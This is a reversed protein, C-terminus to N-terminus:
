SAYEGSAFIDAMAFTALLFVDKVERASPKRDDGYLRSHVTEVAVCAGFLIDRFLSPERDQAIKLLDVVRMKMRSPGIKEAAENMSTFFHNFPQGRGHPRTALWDKFLGDVTALDVHEDMLAYMSKAYDEDNM